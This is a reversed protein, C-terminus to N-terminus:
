REIEIGIKQLLLTANFITCPGPKLKYDFIMNDDQVQIDFHFNKLSEPYKSELESLKLDHTALLGYAKEQILFSLIANSGLYKDTSNTGRLLEDLLVFVQKDKKILNLVKEIRNLEAKFTSTGDNVSDRIRMYTIWKFVSIRLIRACVPAGCYALVGNIGITRLFTSKGAMNSGTILGIRHDENHYTNAVVSGSAILPHKIAESHIHPVEDPLIEPVAWDPNRFKLGALSGIAEFVGVTEFATPLHESMNGQWKGLAVIQRIDWLLTINLIAGVFQNLRADLRNLIITLQKISASVRIKDKTLFQVLRKPMTSEWTENEILSFVPVYYRLGASVKNFRESIQTVVRSFYIGIFLHFLGIGIMVPLFRANWIALGASLMFLYPACKAYLAGIGLRPFHIPQKILGAIIDAPDGTQKILPILGTQFRQVWEIKRALEGVFSQREVIKERIDIHQMWAALTINGQKTANRNVYQFLSHKGFVDLDSSYPHNDDKFGAGDDYINAAADQMCRIENQNLILFNDWADKRRNLHSHRQVLLFFLVIIGLFLLITPGVQESQIVEFLGWGGGIILFLRAIALRNTKQTLTQIAQKADERNQTFFDIPNMNINYM